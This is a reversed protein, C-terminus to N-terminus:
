RVRVENGNADYRNAKGGKSRILDIIKQRLPSHNYKYAKDLPTFEGGYRGSAKKNISDLTMNTLLLEILETNKKNFQAAYHLANWGDGDEIMNCDAGNVMFCEVAKLNEEASAKFLTYGHHMYIQCRRWSMEATISGDDADPAPPPSKITDNNTMLSAM